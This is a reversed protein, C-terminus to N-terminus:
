AVTSERLLVLQRAFPLPLGGRQGAPEIEPLDAPVASVTVLLSASFTQGVVDM